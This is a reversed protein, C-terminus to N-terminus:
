IIFFEHRHATDPHELGLCRENIILEKHQQMIVGAMDGAHYLVMALYRCCNAVERHMPGTVQQLITFAETFLTYAESLMGPQLDLIDSVQFPVAADLFYERAALTIGVKLSLNRIVSIKKALMRADEPLNFQLLFNECLSDFTMSLYSHKTRGSEGSKYKAQEKSSKGPAQLIQVNPRPIGPSFSEANQTRAKLIHKASRVVIENSCLDWLHTLHKTGEAVKGIYRVNIGHAHLAETLTQGDMPSVELTCLDQIFKPLVVDKLHLSARRVNEEDAAIEEQSGALKFETFVNPNFLLEETSDKISTQSGCEQSTQKEGEATDQSEHPSDDDSSSQNSPVQLPTAEMQNQNNEENLYADPQEGLEGTIEELGETVEEPYEGNKDVVQGSTNDSHDLPPILNLTQSENKREGQISSEPAAYYM